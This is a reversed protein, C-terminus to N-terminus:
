IPSSTAADRGLGYAKALEGKRTSIEGEYDVGSVTVEGKFSVGIGLYFSRVESLVNRFNANDRAGVSLLYGRKTVPGNRKRALHWLCQCRDIVAKLQSSMGSFYLPTALVLVDARRIADYVSIMDDDVVCIGNEQCADCARCGSIAMETANLLITEAGADRAGDLFAGLLVATNGVAHPSGLIGLVTVM